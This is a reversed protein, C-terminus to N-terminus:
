SAALQPQADPRVGRATLERLYLQDFAEVMRDFSYRSQVEARAAEGIQSGRAPNAMLECIRRCLAPPDDPPVLLGTRNDAILEVIGGVASAVIPLGAAMAELVANPCAESRSPLVFIDAAALCAPVDERHGHFTFAHEIGLARTREVLRRREPGDGVIDFRADPFRLLVNAAAEVLVDHGKEPRLNAVVIVQRARGNSSRPAFLRLDLGNPVVSIKRRPVRELELRAAAAGSNAVVQHAFAYAARQMVIQMRTKDPNLERRSAIRVPVHALAAAPLAFINSYIETTHVIAIRRTRCWEAFSWAHGAVSPRRLSTVPFQAVSAAAEAAREFWSGRTRFCAIHVAWRNPDLRRVLEIMQRETGGPDFSAM